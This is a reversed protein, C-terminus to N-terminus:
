LKRAIKGNQRKGKLGSEESHGSEGSCAFNAGFCGHLLEEGPELRRVLLWRYFCLKLCAGGLAVHSRWPLVILGDREDILCFHRSTLVNTWRVITGVWVVGVYRRCYERSIATNLIGIRNLDGVRRTEIGTSITCSHLVLLLPTPSLISWDIPIAQAEWGHGAAGRGHTGERLMGDGDM